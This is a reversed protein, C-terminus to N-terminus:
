YKIQEHLDEFKSLKLLGRCNSFLPEDSIVVQVGEFERNIIAEIILQYSLIGGGSLRIQSFELKLPEYYAKIEQILKEYYNINYINYRNFKIYDMHTKTFAEIPKVVLDKFDEMYGSLTLFCFEPKEIELFSVWNFSNGITIVSHATYGGIDINLAILDQDIPAYEACVQAVIPSPLKIFKCNKIQIKNLMTKDKYIVEDGEWRFQSYEGTGTMYVNIASFKAIDVKGNNLVEIITTIILNKFQVDSQLELVYEPYEYEYQMEQENFNDLFLLNNDMNKQQALIANIRNTPIVMKGIKNDILVKINTYGIDIAVNIDM